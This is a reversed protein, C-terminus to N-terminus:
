HRVGPDLIKEVAHRALVGILHARYAADAHIDSVLEDSPIRIHALTEATFSEALASEIATCRFVASAAGTVSVRVGAATQAVYVGVLAYRSAPSAFKCYASAKPRPFVIQTVIEGPVLATEFMGVFFDAAPISRRDTVITADLALLAAPYDAAPDNNAVSGGITGRNRVQPDGIGGALAALSPICRGVVESAAVTAHTTLAGIVLAGKEERIGRLQELAGLDVIVAPSNLRLKMSPVLTMGGALMRADPHDALLAAAGDLTGPRHLEFTKM